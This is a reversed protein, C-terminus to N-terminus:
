RAANWSVKIPSIIDKGAKVKGKMFGRLTKPKLAIPAIQAVPRGRKTVIIPEGTAAVQDMAQLCRAKFEGAPIILPMAARRMVMITVM